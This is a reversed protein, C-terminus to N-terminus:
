YGGYEELEKQNIKVVWAHTRGLLTLIKEREEEAAARSRFFGVRLRMWEEGKVDAKTIYADYGSRILGISPPVIKEQKQSSLVNVAWLARDMGKVRDAAEQSPVFELDLGAPLAKKMVDATTQIESLPRMNHRLLSPWKLSDGYVEERGAIEWLSEGEGVTYHGGEAERSNEPEEYLAVAEPNQSEPTLGEVDSEKVTTEPAKEQAAPVPKDPRYAQRIPVVIRAPKRAEPPEEKSCAGLPTLALCVFLFCATRRM